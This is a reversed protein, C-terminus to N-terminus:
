DSEGDSRGGKVQRRLEENEAAQQKAIGILTSVAAEITPPLPGTHEVWTEGIPSTVRQRWKFLLAGNASEVQEIPLQMKMKNDTKRKNLGV